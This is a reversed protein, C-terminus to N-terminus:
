HYFQICLKIVGNIRYGSLGSVREWLVDYEFLVIFIRYNTNDMKELFLIEDSFIICAEDFVLELVYCFLRWCM